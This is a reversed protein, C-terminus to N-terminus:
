GCMVSNTAQIRFIKANINGNGTIDKIEEPVHEVCFSNFHVIENRNCFLPTWQTGFNIICAWYKIRELLNNRSYVVNFRPENHDCKLRKDWFKDFSSAANFTGNMEM